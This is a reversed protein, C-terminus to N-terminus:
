LFVKGTPEATKNKDCKILYKIFKLARKARFTLRPLVLRDIKKQKAVQSLLKWM